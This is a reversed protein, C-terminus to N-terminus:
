AERMEKVKEDNLEKLMACLLAVGAEYDQRHIIGYHSHLYRTAISLVLTPVGSHALHIRGGDTGGGETFVLQYPIDYKKAVDIAYDRLATSPIMSADYITIGIGAGLKGPALEASVGPVDGAVCTDVVFAIDPAIKAASTQAGRLGVEEQVTGVGYIRSDHPINAMRRMAEAMMACGIRNDWAKAMLYDPNKMVVFEGAPVVADGLSVGFVDEAEEKDKAGIDIYMDKRDVVKKREDLPLIHPPKSGILGPVEGNKTLVTVRQGLLVQDWWGGICTFKLYGEPTIHKVMFGVEDMHAAIMVKPGEEKGKLSFIISGIGDHDEDCIDALNKSLLKKVASEFGSVGPALSLEKLWKLTNM